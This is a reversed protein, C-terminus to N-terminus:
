NKYKLVNKALRLGAIKKFHKPNLTALPLDNEIATAAIIADALDLNLSARLKGGQESISQNLPLIELSSLLNTLESRVKVNKWIKKGSYLETHTLISILLRNETAALRYFWTAQKNKQRLFDIIVSTDFLVGDGNM